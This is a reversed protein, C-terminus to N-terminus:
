VMLIMSDAFILFGVFLWLLFIKSLHEAIIAGLPSLISASILIPLATKYVILGARSNYFSAVIMAISNLLLVTSMATLLPVGLAIFVPILIFAAGVGAITLVTTFIFTIFSAILYIM